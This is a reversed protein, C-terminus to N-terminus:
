RYVLRVAYTTVPMIARAWLPLAPRSRGGILVARLRSWRTILEILNAYGPGPRLYLRTRWRLARVRQLAANPQGIALRIM